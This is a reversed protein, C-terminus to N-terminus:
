QTFALAIVIEPLAVQFSAGFYFQSLYYVSVILLLSFFSIVVANYDCNYKSLSFRALSFLNVIQTTYKAVTSYICIFTTVLACFKVKQPTQSLHNTPLRLEKKPLLQNSSEFVCFTVKPPLCKGDCRAWGRTRYIGICLYQIDVLMGSRACGSPNSPPIYDSCQRSVRGLREDAASRENSPQRHKKCFSLLRICQDEEDDDVALLYLRDEDELQTSFLNIFIYAIHSYVMHSIDSFGHLLFLFIYRLACVLLVHVFHIIHQM